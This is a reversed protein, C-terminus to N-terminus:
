DYGPFYEQKIQEEPLKLDRLISVMADVMKQPGSTYFTREMYDPACKKVAEADIRGTMGKWSPSPNTITNILSIYTNQRQMEELEDKFAIDGDGRNSYLLIISADLRKDTSYKIMSRLPTIGIGGSLMGVKHYEGQFTFNGYPGHVSVKDGAKLTALANAFPHSTLRKTVELFDETPSSSITFHKTMEDSGSRLTIFMYQGALYNFGQPRKFRISKIDPTRQITEIVEIEFLMKEEHPRSSLKVM